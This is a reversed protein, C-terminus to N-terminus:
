DRDLMKQVEAVLDARAVEVEAKAQQLAVEAAGLKEGSKREAARHREDHETEEHHDHEVDDVRHEQAVGDIAISVHHVVDLKVFNELRHISLLLGLARHHHLRAAPLHHVARPHSALAFSIAVLVVSRARAYAVIYM